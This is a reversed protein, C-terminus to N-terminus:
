NTTVIIIDTKNISITAKGPKIKKLSFRINKIYKKVKLCMNLAKEFCFNNAFVTVKAGEELLMSNYMMNSACM